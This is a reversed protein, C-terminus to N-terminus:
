WMIYDLYTYYLFIPGMSSGQPVGYSLHFDDSTRDNILVLQKQISLLCSAFWKQASGIM